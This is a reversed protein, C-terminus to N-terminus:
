AISRAWSCAAGQGAAVAVAVAVVADGFLVAYLGARTPHYSFRAAHLGGVAIGAVTASVM